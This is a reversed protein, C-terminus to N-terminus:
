MAVASGVESCPFTVRICLIHSRPGSQFIHSHPPLLPIVALHVINRLSWSHLKYGKCLCSITKVHNMQPHFHAILLIENSFVQQSFDHIPPYNLTRLAHTRTRTRQKHTYSLTSAQTHTHTHTHARAHACSLSLSFISSISSLSLYFQYFQRLIADM